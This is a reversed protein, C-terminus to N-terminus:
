EQVVKTHAVVYCYNHESTTGFIKYSVKTNSNLKEKMKEKITKFIKGDTKLINENIVFYYCKDDIHNFDYFMKESDENIEYIGYTIIRSVDKPPTSNDIIPKKNKLFDISTYTSYILKNLTEYYSLIPIDGVINELNENSIICVDKFVGSRAYQQFVNFTLRDQMEAINSLLDKEPRIYLISIQTDRYHQLIKLSAGSIKGSGGIIFLTEKEDSYLFSSLDPLKNEYDEPNSYVPLSYCNEGEINSDILKVKCNEVGEFMEAINCGASGLGIINM